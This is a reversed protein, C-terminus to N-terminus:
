GQLELAWGTQVVNSPTHLVSNSCGTEQYEVWLVLYLRRTAERPAGAAAGRRQKWAKEGDRVTPAGAMKSSEGWKWRGALLLEELKGGFRGHTKPEMKVGKGAKVPRAEAEPSQIWIWMFNRTPREGLPTWWSRQGYQQDSGGEMGACLQSREGEAGMVKQRELMTNDGKGESLTWIGGYKSREKEIMDQLYAM